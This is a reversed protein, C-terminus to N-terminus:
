DELDEDEDFKYIDEAYPDIGMDYIEDDEEVEKIKKKEKFTDPIVEGFEQELEQKIEEPIEEMEKKKPQKEDM